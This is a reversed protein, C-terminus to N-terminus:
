ELRGDATVCTVGLKDDDNDKAVMKELLPRSAQKVSELMEIFKDGGRPHEKPLGDWFTEFTFRPHRSLRSKVLRNYVHNTTLFTVHIDNTTLTLLDALKLM